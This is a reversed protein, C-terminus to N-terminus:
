SKPFYERYLVSEEKDAPISAVLYSRFAVVDRRSYIVGEKDEWLTTPFVGAKSTITRGVKDIFVRDDGAFAGSTANLTVLSGNKIRKQQDFATAFIVSLLLAIAFFRKKM